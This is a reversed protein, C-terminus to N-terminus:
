PYLYITKDTMLKTPTVDIRSSFGNKTLVTVIIRDDKEIGSLSRFCLRAAEGATLADTFEASGDMWYVGFYADNTDNYISLTDSTNKVTCDINTNYTLERSENNLSLVVLTENFKMEDSGYPMKIEEYLYEINNNTTADEGYFQIVTIGTGVNQRISMGVARTEQQVSGVVDFFVVFILAAVLITATVLILTSIGLEAKKGM